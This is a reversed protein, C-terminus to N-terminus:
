VIKKELQGEKGHFKSVIISPIDKEHVTVRQSVVFWQLPWSRKGGGQPQCQEQQSHMSKLSVARWRLEEKIWFGWCRFCLDKQGGWTYFFYKTFSDWQRVHVSSWNLFSPFTNPAKQAGQLREFSFSQPWPFCLLHPQLQIILVM